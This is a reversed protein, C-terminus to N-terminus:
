LTRFMMVKLGMVRGERVSIYEDMSITGQSLQRLAYYWKEDGGFWNQILWERWDDPNRHAWMHCGTCLSIGNNIFHRTIKRIRTFIHAAQLGKGGDPYYAGCRQCTWCDRAKVEKDWKVDVSTLKM